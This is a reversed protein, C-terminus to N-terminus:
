SITEKKYEDYGGLITTVKYNETLVTIFIFEKEEISINKIEKLDIWRHCWIKNDNFYYKVM